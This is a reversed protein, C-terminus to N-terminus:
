DQGHVLFKEFSAPIAIGHEAGRTMPQLTIAVTHHCQAAHLMRGAVVDIAQSFCGVSIEVVYNGATKPLHVAVTCLNRRAIAPGDDGVHTSQLEAAVRM